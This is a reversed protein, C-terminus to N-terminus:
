LMDRIKTKEDRMDSIDKSDIRKAAQTAASEKDYEYILCKGFSVEAKKGKPATEGPKKMISKAGTAQSNKALESMTKM